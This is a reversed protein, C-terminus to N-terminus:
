SFAWVKGMVYSAIAVILTVMALSLLYWIQPFYHLAAMYLIQNAAFAGVSVQLWRALSRTLHANADFTLHRHGSFSVIFACAFALVNAISPSFNLHDVLIYVIAIHVSAAVAGVLVFTAPNGSKKM